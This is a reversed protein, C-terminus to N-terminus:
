NLVTMLERDIELLRQVEPFKHLLYSRAEQLLRSPDVVMADTDLDFCLTEWQGTESDHVHVDVVEDLLTDSAREVGFCLRFTSGEPLGELPLGTIKAAWKGKIRVSYETFDGWRTNVRISYNGALIENHEAILDDRQAGPPTIPTMDCFVGTQLGCRNDRYGIVPIKFTLLVKPFEHVM